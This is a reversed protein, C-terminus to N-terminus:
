IWGKLFNNKNHAVYNDGIPSGFLTVDTVAEAQILSLNAVLM